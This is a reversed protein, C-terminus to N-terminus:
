KRIDGRSSRIISPKGSTNLQYKNYIGNLNKVKISFKGTWMPTFQCLCEDIGDTDSAMLNGNEDYVYLEFDCDGDGDGTVYVWAKERGRFTVTYVQTPYWVIPTKPVTTTDSIITDCPQPTTPSVASAALNFLLTTALILIRFTNVTM